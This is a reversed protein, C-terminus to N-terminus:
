RPKVRRPYGTRLDVLYTDAPACDRYLVARITSDNVPVPMEATYLLPVKREQGDRRIVLGHETCSDGAATREVRAFGAVLTGGQPLRMLLSDGAAVRGSASDPTSTAHDAPPRHDRGCAWIAPLLLLPLRRM